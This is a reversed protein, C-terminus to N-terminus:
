RSSCTGSATKWRSDAPVPQRRLLSLPGLDQVARVRGINPTYVPLYGRPQLEDNLFNELMGRVIAGKPQWLVLGAGVVPSITFLELQKGLVRHDRKKAEEIRKCISKSNRSPSSLRATCGSCNSARNRRGELLRRRRVAAQVRRDGRREPRATRPLSRSVRGASLVVATPHEALGEKIHEVKLTQGLDRCIKLAKDRPENSGSSRSTRKVIKAMEAEIAPFDEESIPTSWSSTTTSGTTSRRASPWSCATFLRMVARAMVHACSSAHRGAIRSREQHADAAVSRGPPCRTDLSVKGDVEAALAAKALGAGIEAAIKRPTTSSEYQKVTGDPLRVHLM